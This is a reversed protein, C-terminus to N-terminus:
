NKSTMLDLREQISTFQNNLIRHKCDDWKKRFDYFYESIELLDGFIVKYNSIVSIQIFIPLLEFVRIEYKLPAASFLNYQIIKNQEKDNLRTLVSIDIDSTPRMSEEVYSGYLVVEYTNELKKLTKKIENLNPLNM